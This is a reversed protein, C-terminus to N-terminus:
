KKNIVMHNKNIVGLLYKVNFDDYKGMVNGSYGRPLYRGVDDFIIRCKPRNETYRFYIYIM